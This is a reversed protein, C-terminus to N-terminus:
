YGPESCLALSLFVAQIQFRLWSFFCKIGSGLALSFCQSKSVLSMTSSLTKASSNFWNQGYGHVLTGSAATYFQALHSLSDGTVLEAFFIRNSLPLLLFSFFLSNLFIIGCSCTIHKNSLTTELTCSVAGHVVIASSLTM